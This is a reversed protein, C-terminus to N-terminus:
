QRMHEHNNYYLEVRYVLDPYSVWEVHWDAFLINTGQNHRAVVYSQVGMRVDFKIANGDHHSWVGMHPREAFAVYQSPENISEITWGTTVYGNSTLWELDPLCWGNATYDPWPLFGSEEWGDEAPLSESPCHLLGTNYFNKVADRYAPGIPMQRIEAPIGLYPALPHKPSHWYPNYNYDSAPLFGANDQAYFNVQLGTQQLHTGCVVKRAAERANQLAPLLIAILVAIIAVVVLLEILTFGIFKNSDSKPFRLIAM